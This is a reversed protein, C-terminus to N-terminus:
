TGAAELDQGTAIEMGCTIGDMIGLTELVIIVILMRIAKQMDMRM